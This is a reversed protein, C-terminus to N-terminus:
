LNPVYTVTIVGGQYSNVIFKSYRLTTVGNVTTSFKAIYADGIVATIRGGTGNGPWSTLSALCANGADVIENGITATYFTLNLNSFHISGSGLGLSYNDNGASSGTSTTTQGTVAACPAPSSGSGCGSIVIAGFVACVAVIARALRFCIM